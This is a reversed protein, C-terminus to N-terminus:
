KAIRLDQVTRQGEAITVRVGSSVLTALVRPDSWQGEDIDTVAVLFYDGAPLNKLIFRGDDAPRTSQIRRSQATWFVRDASFAVVTFATVPRGAADVLSGSLETTRSTLTVTLPPVVADPRVELAVDALDPGAGTISKLM